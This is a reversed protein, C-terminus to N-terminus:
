RAFLAVLALLNNLAHFVIGPLLGGSRKRMIGTAMGFLLYMPFLVWSLHLFAFVSAQFINAIRFNTYRQCSDLVVGRFIIEEYVPVLLGILLIGAGNGFTTIVAEIDQRSTLFINPVNALDEISFGFKRIGTQLYLVSILKYLILAAAGVAISRRRSWLKSLLVSLNVKYMAAFGFLAMVIIFILMERGKNEVSIEHGLHSSDFASYLTEPDPLCAFLTAFLYGVSVFWFMKLGWLSEYPKPRAPFNWHRGVFYVPLIWLYPIVILVALALLLSLMGALDRFKWPQSPHAFFLKLRYFGIPDTAYGSDRFKNYTAICDAGSQYKLDHKLLSLLASEKDWLRSTDAVLYKRASEYQGLGELTSAVEANIFTSDTRAIQNYIDLADSYAELKLLMNAKQILRGQVTTTDRNSKLAKLADDKRNLEILIRAYELSAAYQADRAIAKEMCALARIYDGDYYYHDAMAGYLAALNANSWEDPHEEVAKEANDFVEYLEDGWLYSIRFLIVEPHTPFRESLVRVCSDFAAQHPNSDEYEDYQALQLFKCKEVFVSVNEPHKDLYADYERICEQYVHDGAHKIKELFLEHDLTKEGFLIGFPFLAVVITFLIQYHSKRM